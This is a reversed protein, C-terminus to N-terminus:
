LCVLGALWNNRLIGRMPPYKPKPRKSNNSGSRGSTQPQKSGLMRPSAKPDDEHCLHRVIIGEYHDLPIKETWLQLGAFFTQSVIQRTSFDIYKCHGGLLVAAIIWFMVAIFVAAGDTDAARYQWCLWGAFAAIVSAVGKVLLIELKLESGEFVFKDQSNNM